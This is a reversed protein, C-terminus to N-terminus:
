PIRPSPTASFIRAVLYHIRPGIIKNHQGNTEHSSLSVFVRSPITRRWRIKRTRVRNAYTYTRRNGRNDVPFGVFANVRSSLIVRRYGATKQKTIKPSRSRFSRDRNGSLECVLWVPVFLLCNTAANTLSWSFM